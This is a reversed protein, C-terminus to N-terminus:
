KVAKRKTTNARDIKGCTTDNNTNDAGFVMKSFNTNAYYKDTLEPPCFTRDMYSM